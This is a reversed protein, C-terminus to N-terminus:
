DEAVVYAAEFVDLGSARRNTPELNENSRVHAAAIKRENAHRKLHAVLRNTASRPTNGSFRIGCQPCVKVFANGERFAEANAAEGTSATSTTGSQTQTPQARTLPQAAQSKTEVSTEGSAMEWWEEASRERLVLARWDHQTLDRLVAKSQKNANRLADRLTNALTRDWSADQAANDYRWQWANRAAELALQADRKAEVAKLMQRKLVNATLLVLVPPAFTALPALANEWAHSGEAVGNGILAITLCILSGTWLAIRELKGEANTAALSFIVQGVEAMLVTCVAAVYVSLAHTITSQTWAIAIANLRMASPVFAAGLMLLSLFTVTNTLWRPYKGAPPWTQRPEVGAIHLRATGYAADRQAATLANVKGFASSVESM